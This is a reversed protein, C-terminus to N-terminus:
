FMGGLCNILLPLVLATIGLICIITILVILKKVGYKMEAHEEPSLEDTKSEDYKECSQERLEEVTMGFVEAIRNLVDDNAPVFSKEWRQLSSKSVYIMEAFTRLSYGREERLNRILRGDVKQM